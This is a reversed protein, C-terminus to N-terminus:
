NLSQLFALLDRLQDRTLTRGLGEPMISTPQRRMQEIRDRRIRQENRASDLLVVLDQTQRGIVGAFIQGDTTQVVYSEYGQAITSSPILISEVLDRGSRSAGIKTLDPGIRGGQDGVRHCSSCAAANGLFVARGRVVDGGRILPLFEALEEAQRQRHERLREFLQAASPRASRPLSEVLHALQDEAPRWGGDIRDRLYGVIAPATREDASRVLLPLLLSPSILVTDRVADLVRTLEEATLCARALVEAAALRDIPRDADGLRGLLWHLARASLRPQSRVVARLLEIRLGDGISAEDAMAALRPMSEELMLAAATSAAAARVGSDHDALARGVAARWAAPVEAVASQRMSELLLQRRPGAVGAEDGAAARAVLGAVEDRAQFALVLARLGQDQEPTLERARLWGRILAIAHDAWEPHRQLIELATRRLRPDAAGTRAVLMERGLSRHPPQDLLLLAARQVCPATRNLANALDAAGAHRSAAYVLAHELFPDPERALAEWIAGLCAATGCHALAEAAALRVAGDPASLLERLRPECGRDGRAALGRAAAAVLEPKDQDLLRRLAELAAPGPLRALLWAARPRAERDATTPLWSEIARVVGASRRALEAVARDCVMPRPDALRRALEAEAAGGWDM